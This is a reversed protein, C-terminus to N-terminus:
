FNICRGSTTELPVQVEEIRQYYSQSGPVCFGLDFEKEENTEIFSKKLLM